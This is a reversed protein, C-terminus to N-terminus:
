SAAKEGRDVAPQRGDAGELGYEELKKRLTNRHIGLLSAAKLRVGRAERLAATLLTKEVLEVSRNWVQGRSAELEEAVHRSLSEEYSVALSVRESRDGTMLPLDATHILKGDCLITAREIVNELERVNGPWHYRTLLRVAEPSIRLDPLQNEHRFKELFHDVLIPIDELRERLPPVQIPVVNLRYYLDERFESRELMQELNKNTAAIVRVDVKQSAESGVAEFEREQLVRLIKVQLLPSMDGIEDLFITGGDALGFKGKRDAVAGTFSGKLHGFLEAELLNEPIAACNVRIFPKDARPSNFHIAHAILEKGTGSEGRILVTSRGRAVNQITEYVKEMAPSSGVIKDFHYITKLEERLLRNERLLLEKERAVGFYVKVAPTLASTIIQILAMDEEFPLDGPFPKLAGVVGVVREELTIPAAIFSLKEGSGPMGTRGLFKPEASVDKVGIAKGTKVVRGTIGEGIRYRGKAMEEPTMGHALEIALEDTEPNLLVLFSRRMQCRQSFIEGVRRFLEPFDLVSGLVQSIMLLTEDQEAKRRLEAFTKANELIQAAQTGVISLLQLDEESFNAVRSSDVSIVGITKQDLVMPVALESRIHEKVCVYRKDSRVDPVNLPKGHEAVWGTIGEGVKLRVEEEVNAGLGRAAVIRLTQDPQILIVSGTTAATYRISADLIRDILLDPDLTSNLALSIDQLIALRDDMRIQGSGEKEVVLGERRTERSVM